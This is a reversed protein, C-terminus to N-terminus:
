KKANLVIKSIIAILQQNEDVLPATKVKSVSNHDFLLTLWYLTEKAEKKAITFQHVFEKKSGAGDAEAANAGISASSRVVQRILVSNEPTRPLQRVARLVRLVFKYIRDHIEHKTNLM